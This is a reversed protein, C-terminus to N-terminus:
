ARGTKKVWEADTMGVPRGDGYYLSAGCNGCLGGFIESPAGCNCLGEGKDKATAEEVIKDAEGCQVVSSIPVIDDQDSVCDGCSYYLCRKCIEANM